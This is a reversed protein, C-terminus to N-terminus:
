SCGAQGATAPRQHRGAARPAQPVHLAAPPSAAPELDAHLRARAAQLWRSHQHLVCGGGVWGGVVSLLARLRPWVAAGRRGRPLTCLARCRGWRVDRLAKLEKAMQSQSKAVLLTEDLDFVLPLRVTALLQPAPSAPRPLSRSRSAVGAVRACRHAASMLLM